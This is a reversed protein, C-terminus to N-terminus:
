HKKAENEGWKLLVLMMGYLLFICFGKHKRRKLAKSNKILFVSLGRIRYIKIKRVKRFILKRNRKKEGKQIM